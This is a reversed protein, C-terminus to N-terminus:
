LYSRIHIFESSGSALMKALFAGAGGLVPIVATLVLALKWGKTYAIAFGAFFTTM